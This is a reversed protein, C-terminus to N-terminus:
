FKYGVGLGIIWPSIGVDVTGVEVGGAKITADTSLDVYKVDFNVLWNGKGLNWDLGANVLFGFSDDLDIELGADKVAQSEDFSFFTYNFGAGVYSKVNGKGFFYQATFCPPILDASGYNFGDSDGGKGNVDHSPMAAIVELGWKPTFMYTVDVELATASDAEITGGADDVPDSEDTPAVDIIRGRLKWKGDAADAPLAAFVVIAILAFWFTKKLM